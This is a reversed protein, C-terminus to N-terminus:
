IVVRRQLDPRVAVGAPATPKTAGGGQIRKAAQVPAATKKPPEIRSAVPKSPELVHVHAQVPATTTEQPETATHAYDSKQPVPRPKPQSAETMGGPQRRNRLANVRKKLTEILIVVQMRLRLWGRPAGMDDHNPTAPTRDNAGRDSDSNEREPPLSHTSRERAVRHLEKQKEKDAAAAAARLHKMIDHLAEAAVDIGHEAVAKEVGAKIQLYADAAQTSLSNSAPPMRAIDAFPGAIEAPSATSESLATAPAPAPASAVVVAGLPAVAPPAAPVFADPVSILWAPPQAVSLSTADAPAPATAAKAILPTAALPAAPAAVTPAAAAAAAAPAATALAPASALSLAAQPPPSPMAPQPPAAPPQASLSPSGAPASAAASTAAPALSPATALTTSASSQKRALSSSAASTVTTLLSGVISRKRAAPLTELSAEEEEEVHELSHSRSLRAAVQPKEKDAEPSNAPGLARSLREQRAAQTPSTVPPSVPESPASKTTPDTTGGDEDEANFITQLFVQSNRSLRSSMEVMSGMFGPQSDSKSVQVPVSADEPPPTASDQGGFRAALAHRKAEADARADIKWQAEKGSTTGQRSQEWAKDAAQKTSEDMQVGSKYGALTSPAISGGVSAKRMRRLETAEAARAESTPIGKAGVQPASGVGSTLSTQASSSFRSFTTSMRRISPRLFAANSTEDPTKVKVASASGQKTEASKPQLKEMTPTPNDTVSSTNGDVAKVPAKSDIEIGTVKPKSEGVAKAAKAEAKARIAAQIKAAEGDGLKVGMKPPTVKKETQATGEAAKKKAANAAIMANISQQEAKVVQQRKVHNAWARFCKRVIPKRMMGVLLAKQAVSKREDVANQFEEQKKEKKREAATMKKEPAASPLLAGMISGRKRPASGAPTSNNVAPPSAASAVGPLLAGMISGRKRPASGASSASPASAVGPLLAGM